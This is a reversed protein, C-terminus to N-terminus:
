KQTAPMKRERRPVGSKMPRQDITRGGAPAADKAAQEIDCYEEALDRGDKENKNPHAPGQRSETVILEHPQTPNEKEFDGEYVDENRGEYESIKRDSSDPFSSVLFFRRLCNWTDRSQLENM